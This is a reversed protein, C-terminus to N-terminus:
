KDTNFINGVTPTKNLALALATNHSNTANFAALANAAFSQQSAVAQLMADTPTIADIFLQVSSSIGQLQNAYGKTIIAIADLQTSSPQRQRTISAYVDKATSIVEYKETETVIQFHAAKNRYDKLKSLKQKVEDWGVPQSLVHESIIGWPRKAKIKEELATSIEVINTSTNFLELLDKASINRKAWSLDFELVEIMEGLMLRSTLPDLQNSYTVAKNSAFKKAYQTKSFLDYFVEVLDLIHLLLKRLETEVKYIEDLVERNRKWSATDTLISIDKHVRILSYFEDTLIARHPQAMVMFLGNINRRTIKVKEDIGVSALKIKAETWNEASIIIELKEPLQPM